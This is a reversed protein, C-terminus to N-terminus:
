RTPEEPWAEALLMYPVGRDRLQPAMWDQDPRLLVYAVAGAAGNDLVVARTNPAQGSLRNARAMVTELSPTKTTNRLKGGRMELTTKM